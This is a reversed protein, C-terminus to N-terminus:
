QMILIRAEIHKIKYIYASRASEMRKTKNLRKYYGWFVIHCPELVMIMSIRKTM